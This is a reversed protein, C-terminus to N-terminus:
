SLSVRSSVKVHSYCAGWNIGPFNARGANACSAAMDSMGWKPVLLSPEYAPTKVINVAVKIAKFALDYVETDETHAIGFAIARGRQKLDVTSVVIVPLGEHTM